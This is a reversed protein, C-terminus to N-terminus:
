TKPLNITEVSGRVIRWVGKARDFSLLRVSESEIRILVSSRATDGSVSSMFRSCRMKYIHARVLENQFDCKTIRRKTRSAGKAAGAQILLAGRVNQRHLIHSRWMGISILHQCRIIQEFTKKKVVKTAADTTEVSQWSCFFHSKSFEYM